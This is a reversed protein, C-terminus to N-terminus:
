QVVFTSTKMNPDSADSSPGVFLQYTMKEVSMQHNAVNWYALDAANVTLTVTKTAGAALGEVRAFAKLDKVPRGWTDNVATNSYGVYLQVVESGARPGTNKVDITVTLKGDAAITSSAIALNSFEFTTYSLGYGFPYQPKVAHKEYWRYGHYYDYVVDGQSTNQFVPIDAEKVPVTQVMKGSPNTDGFLIEALATGEKMGAYWGMIVADVGGVWDSVVVAGGSKIVVVIKLAPHAAKLAVAATINALDRDPLSLSVRDKWEGEEGSSSRALDAYYYAGVIVVVESSGIAAENGQVTLYSKATANTGDLAASIGEFPTVVLSGDVVKADSSGKDGMNESNAFKGVVSVKTVAAKSVPLVDDALAATPGNKLLVIGERAARLALEQAADSKTLAPRFNVAHKVIGSHFKAYLIRLVAEDVLDPSVASTGVAQVLASGYYYSDDFQSPFTGSSFPMEIDLGAVPSNKTQGKAFWDSITFGSFGWEQKLITRVLDTSYGAYSGNVRNYSTMLCSSKAEVAKRFHPLYVERLTREDLVANVYIRTDEINNAALHKVCAQVRYSDELAADPEAPDVVNPDFEIGTIMSAGMAGLLFSDEGYSEQARGWRPHSVQNITPALLIHRGLYRMERAMTKGILRELEVDFSAARAMSVPFVTTGYDTNYWRVGRPGDMYKFGPLSLRTNDEQDFMNNPNYAPGSMQQVKEQTSMSRLLAQASTVDPDTCDLHAKVILPDCNSVMGGDDTTSTKRCSVGLVLLTTCCVSVIRKM